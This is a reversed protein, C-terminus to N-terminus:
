ALQGNNKVVKIAGELRAFDGDFKTKAFSKIDMLERGNYSEARRSKESGVAEYIAQPSPQFGYAELCQTAIQRNTSQHNSLRELSKRIMDANNM